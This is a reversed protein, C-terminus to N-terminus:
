DSGSGADSAAGRSNEYEVLKALCRALYATRQSDGLSNLKTMVETADAMGNATALKLLRANDFKGEADALASLQGRLAQDAQTSSPKSPGAATNKRPPPWIGASTSGSTSARPKAPSRKKAVVPGSSAPIHKANEYERQAAVTRRANESIDAGHSRNARLSRPRVTRSM